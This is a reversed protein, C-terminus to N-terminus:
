NGKIVAFKSFVRVKRSQTRLSGTIKNEEEEYNPYQYKSMQRVPM